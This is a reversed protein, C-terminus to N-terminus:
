VLRIFRLIIEANFESIVMYNMFMELHYPFIKRLSSVVFSQSRSPNLKMNGSIADFLIKMVDIESLSILLIGLGSCHSNCCMASWM